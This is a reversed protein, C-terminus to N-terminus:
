ESFTYRFTGNAVLVPVLVIDLILSLPPAIFDKLICTNLGIAWLPSLLVCLASLLGVIPFLMKEFIVLCILNSLSATMISRMSLPIGKLYVLSLHMFLTVFLSRYLPSKSLSNSLQLALFALWSLFFSHSPHFNEWALHIMFTAFIILTKETKHPRALLFFLSLLACRLLPAPCKLAHLYFAGAPFLSFQAVFLSTKKSFLRQIFLNTQIWANSFSYFQSGSLVLLHLLGWEKYEHFLKWTIPNDSLGTSILQALNRGELTYASSTISQLQFLFAQTLTVGWAM